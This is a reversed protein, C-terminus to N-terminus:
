GAGKQQKQRRQSHQLEAPDALETLGLEIAHLAVDLNRRKLKSFREAELHIPGPVVQLHARCGHAVAVPLAVRVAIFL